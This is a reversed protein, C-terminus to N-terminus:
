AGGARDYLAHLPASFGLADIHLTEDDRVTASTFAGGDRTWVEVHRRDARLLLIAQVSPILRYQGLKEGRDYDETSPSLVEFLVTPNTVTHGSPDEPDLELDGCVVTVDPYTARGSAQIRIRLDSTYVRCPGSALQNSLEAILAAGLAAHAPSGGTMAWVTGDAYEHRVNSVAELELYERFTFRQRAAGVM